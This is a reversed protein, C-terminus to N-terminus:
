FVQASFRYIETDKLKYADRPLGAKECTHELFEIVDWGYETAVQPLLLGSYYGRRIILGDRGILIEKIDKVREFPTLVSIEIELEPLEDETVPNFRPDELAAARAMQQCSIYLPQDAYIHGICGRLNGHKNITVFVGFPEKLKEPIDKFEPIKKGRVVAEITKRAIEKLKMKEEETFGLDVGVKQEEGDKLFAAALYGVVQSYDGTVNGSTAYMLIKAKDAGMKKAVLMATIIPGGGCAECSDNSLRKYLLEPAFKSVADIVQNDLEEATKQSHYHSLDSSAVLLVKKGKIAKFIAESLVECTKLDQTGMVIEVSKFKKLVTQLFPVQIEVSHEESHALPDYTLVKSNEKIIREALELDYEVIGLPTKRGRMKDISAGYFGHHHSPGIIIVDDYEKDLVAKYAFAAIPGSYMYGAHPSILGYVEGAIKTRANELFVQITKRLDKEQGPYWSGAHISERYEKASCDQIMILVGTFIILIFDKLIRM